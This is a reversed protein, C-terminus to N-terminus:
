KQKILEINKLIEEKTKYRAEIIRRNFFFYLYTYIVDAFLLTFAPLLFAIANSTLNFNSKQQALLIVFISLLIFAGVVLLIIPVFTPGKRYLTKEFKRLEKYHPETDDIEMTLHTYIGKEVCSIEKYGLAAFVEKRERYQPITLKIKKRIM